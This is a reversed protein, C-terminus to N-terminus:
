RLFKGEGPHVIGIREAKGREREKGSIGLWGNRQIEVCSETCWCHIIGALTDKLLAGPKSFLESVGAPNM